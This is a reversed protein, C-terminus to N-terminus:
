DNETLPNLTNILANAFLTASYKAEDLTNAESGVEVLVSGSCLDHNYKKSVFYMPRALNKYMRECSQQLRIAFRFNSQWNDYNEVAGSQSGCCLMIQAANKDNIQAIPRLKTKNDYTISDRHLDIVVDISPYKELYEKTKVRCREYSGSYSERDYQTKDHLTVIGAKNLQEALVDGVSVMNKSNDTSKVSWNNYYVDSAKPYYCETAHTHVILVQPSKNKYIKIDPAIKIQKSLDIKLGTHNAIHINEIALSSSSNGITETSIKGAALSNVAVAKSSKETIPETPKQLKKSTQTPENNTKPEDNHQASSQIDTNDNSAVDVMIVSRVAFSAISKSINWLPVAIINRNAFATVAVILALNISAIRIIAKKNFSIKNFKFKM